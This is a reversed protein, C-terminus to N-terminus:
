TYSGFVLAVPRDGRFSSLRVTEESKKYKLEFDPALDGVQLHGDGHGMVKSWYRSERYMDYFPYAFYGAVGLAAVVVISILIKKSM